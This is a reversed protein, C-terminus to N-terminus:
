FATELPAWLEVSADSINDYVYTGTGIYSDGDRIYAGYRTGSLQDIARRYPKVFHMILRDEGDAQLGAIDGTAEFDDFGDLAYLVDLASRNAIVAEHRLSQLLSEKYLNATLRVGNSFRRDTDIVFTYTKRDESIDWSKALSPIFGGTDDVGVLSDFVHSIIIAGALSSQQAPYLPGWGNTGLGFRLVRDDNRSMYRGGAYVMTMVAMVAIVGIGVSRRTLKM